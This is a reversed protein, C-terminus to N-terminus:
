RNRRREWEEATVETWGDPVKMRSPEPTRTALEAEAINAVDRWYQRLSDPLPMTDLEAEALKRYMAPMIALLATPVRDFVLKTNLRRGM